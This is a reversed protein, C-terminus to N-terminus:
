EKEEEELKGGKKGWDGRRGMRMKSKWRGGCWRGGGRRFSKVAASSWRRRKPCAVQDGHFEKSILAVM